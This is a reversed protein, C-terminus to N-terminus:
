GSVPRRPFGAYEDSRHRRWEAAHCRVWDLYASEGLDRGAKESEIWRHRQMEECQAASDRQHRWRRSHFLNWHVVAAKEGVDHGRRLSLYYKHEVIAAQEAACFDRIRTKRRTGPYRRIM